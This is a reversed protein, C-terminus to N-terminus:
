GSRTAATTKRIRIVRPKAPKASKKIRVQRPCDTDSFVTKGDLKCKYLTTAAGPLCAAALGIALAAGLYRSLVSRRASAVIARCATSSFDPRPHPM